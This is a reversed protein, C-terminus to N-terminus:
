KTSSWHHGPAFCRGQDNLPNWECHYGADINACSRVEWVGEKCYNAFTNDICDEQGNVCTANPDYQRGSSCGVLLMVVILKKM